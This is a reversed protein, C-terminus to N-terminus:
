RKGASAGFEKQRQRVAEILLNGQELRNIEDWHWNLDDPPFLPKPDPKRRANADTVVKMVAAADAFANTRTLYPKGFVCITKTSDLTYDKLSGAIKEVNRIQLSRGTVCTYVSGASKIHKLVAFTRNNDTFTASVSTYDMDTKWYRIRYVASDTIYYSIFDDSVIPPSVKIGSSQGTGHWFGSLPNSDAVTKQLSSVVAPQIGDMDTKLIFDLYLSNEVVAVPVSVESNKGYHLIIEWAGSDGNEKKKLYTVPIIKYQLSINEAAPSTVSNISRVSIDSFSAPEAARDYYWGYFTKLIIVLDASFDKDAPVPFYIYRDSGNWLGALQAPVVSTATDTDAGTQQEQATQAYLFSCLFVGYILLPIRMKMNM